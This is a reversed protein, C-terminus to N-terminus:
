RREALVIVVWIGEEVGSLGVGMTNVDKETLPQEISGSLAHLDAAKVVLTRVSHYRDAYRRLERELPAGAQEATLEGKALRRATDSAAHDLLTDAGLPSLGHATRLAHAKRRLEDISAPTVTEVPRVFLETVFISSAEADARTLAVGIGVRTVEAHLLNARHGPSEMFGHEAEKPSGARAVNELILGAPLHARRLRDGANGTSPSVHGVFDHTAMDVSHARAVRSLQPDLVLSGVGARKRDAAVLRFLAAEAEDATAPPCCEVDAGGDASTPITLKRPAAVGCYFPFNAVVTPGRPGDGVVEVRYRGNGAACRLETAFRSPDRGLELKEVKGDPRTVFGAPRFYPPLIQGRLPALGGEPLMRPAPELEVFSEEFALLIETEKAFKAEVCALHRYQAESLLHPLKSRLESFVPAMGGSGLTVMLLQPAPEVIGQLRVADEVLRSSPINGGRLFPALAELARELRPDSRLHVGQSARKRGKEAVEIALSEVATCRPSRLLSSPSEDRTPAASAIASSLLAFGLVCSPRM